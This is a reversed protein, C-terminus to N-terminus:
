SLSEGESKDEEKNEEVPQNEQQKKKMRKTLFKDIKRAIYLMVIVWFVIVTLMEIYEFLHAGIFEWNFAKLNDTLEVPLISVGFVITACGIGRCLFIELLHVWFNM